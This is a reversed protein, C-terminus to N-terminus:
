KLPWIRFLIKGIINEESISGIEKNRSDISNIRDDSLVFWHGDPVQYPYEIDSDGYNLEKVYKEELQYGNIYVKGSEDINVWNGTGAIVRKVLIKNGHYFAIIDGSKINKTKISLVIDGTNYKPYMSSSSIQLVPMVLTAILAALAAIIILSYITTMLVNKYKSKYTVRKLEQEIQSITLDKYSIKKNDKKNCKNNIIKKNKEKKNDVKKKSIKKDNLKNKKNKIKDKVLKTIKKNKTQKIDNKKINVKKKM